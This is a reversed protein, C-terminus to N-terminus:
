NDMSFSNAATKMWAFFKCLTTCIIFIRYFVRPDKSSVSIGLSVEFPRGRLPENSSHRRLSVYILLYPVSSFNTVDQGKCVCMWSRTDVLFIPCATPLNFCTKCMARKQCVVTPGGRVSHM